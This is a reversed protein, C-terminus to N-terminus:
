TRKSCYSSTSTSQSSAIGLCLAEALPGGPRPSGMWLNPDVVQPPPPPPPARLARGNETALGMIGFGGMESNEDDEEQNYNGNGGSMSLTLSSLPLQKENSSVPRGKSGVEREATSWADIFSRTEQSPYKFPENLNQHAQFNLGHDIFQHQHEGVNGGFKTAQTKFQQWQDPNSNSALPVTTEGKM